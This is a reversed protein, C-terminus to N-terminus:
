ENTEGEEVTIEPTEDFIMKNDDTGVTPAKKSGYVKALFDRRPNFRLTVDTSNGDIYDNVDAFSGYGEVGCTIVDGPLYGAVHDAEKIVNDGAGLDKLIEIMSVRKGSRLRNNLNDIIGLVYMRSLQPSEDWQTFGTEDSPNYKEFRYSFDGAAEGVLVEKKVKKTKGTEPDVEEITQKDKKLGYYYMNDADEGLDDRVAERYRGFAESVSELAVTTLALRKSMIGFSAGFSAVCVGTLIGTPAYLKAIRGTTKLVLRRKDANQSEIIATKEEEDKVTEPDVAKIERLMDRHDDLIAELRMTSRIATYIIGGLSAVGVGFFIYPSAKKLGYGAKTMALQFNM